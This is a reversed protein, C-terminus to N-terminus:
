QLHSMMEVRWLNPRFTTAPHSNDGEDLLVGEYVFDDIVELKNKMGFTRRGQLTCM